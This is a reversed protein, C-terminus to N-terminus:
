QELIIRYVRKHGLVVEAKVGSGHKLLFPARTVKVQARVHREGNSGPEAIPEIREVTGEAHGHLRPNYLASYLRVEQGVELGAVHREPVDLQAIWEEILSTKPNVPSLQVLLDGANVAQGQSVHVKLVKWASKEAPVHLPAQALLDRLAQYRVQTERNTEMRAELDELKAKWRQMDRQSEDARVFAIVQEPWVIDGAQLKHLRLQDVTLV